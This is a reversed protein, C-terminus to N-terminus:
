SDGSSGGDSRPYVAQHAADVAKNFKDRLKDNNFGIAGTEIQELAKVGLAEHQTAELRRLAAPGAAVAVLPALSRGHLVMAAEEMVRPRAVVGGYGVFLDVAGAALLDSNGDGILLSRGNQGRLLERVILAKGDSVTLAGDDYTLYQEDGGVWWQGSLENYTVGVARIHHDPVGLYVGFERVPELLGGSIIYVQHGLEHLAAIVERADQVVNKKYARRIDRVQERTPNVARLRLDYIDALDLEGDM